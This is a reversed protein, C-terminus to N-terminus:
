RKNTTLSNRNRERIKVRGEAKCINVRAKEIFCGWGINYTYVNFPCDNCKNEIEKCMGEALKYLSDYVDNFEKELM